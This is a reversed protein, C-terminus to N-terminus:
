LGVIIREPYERVKSKQVNFVADSVGMSRALMEGDAEVPFLSFYKEFSKEWNVSDPAFSSYYKLESLYLEKLERDVLGRLKQIYLYAACRDIFNAPKNKADEKAKKISEKINALYDEFPKFGELAPSKELLAFILQTNSYIREPEKIYEMFKIKATIELSKSKAFESYPIFDRLIAALQLAREHDGSHEIATLKEAISEGLYLAKKYISFEKLFQFKECLLYFDKFNKNKLHEGAEKYKTWNKLLDNIETQKAPVTFFPKLLAVVDNKNSLGGSELLSIASKMSERYANELALYAPLKKIIQTVSAVKYATQYDSRDLADFFRVIDEIQSAMEEFDMAAQKLRLYPRALKQAAVIDNKSLLASVKVKQGEWSEALAKKYETDYTLFINTRALEDCKEFDKIAFHTSFEDYRAMIDVVYLEGSAFGIYLFKDDKEMSAIGGGSAFSIEGIIEKNVVDFVIIMGERTSILATDESFKAIDTPWLDLIKRSYKKLKEKVCYLEITGDRLAALLMTDDLFFKSEQVVTESDFFDTIEKEVIDFIFTTKDFYSISMYRGGCSFEITSVYDGRKEFQYFLRGDVTSFIACEGGITGGAVLLGSRSFANIRVDSKLYQILHKKTLAGDKIKLINIKKSNELSLALENKSSFTFTKTYAYMPQPLKTISTRFKEHLSDKDFGLVKCGADFAYVGGEVSAIHLVSSGIQFLKAVSYASMTKKRKLKFKKIKSYSLKNVIQQIKAM